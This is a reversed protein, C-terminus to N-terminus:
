PNLHCSEQCAGYGIAGGIWYAEDWFFGDNQDDEQSQNDDFDPDTSGEMDDDFNGDDIFEGDFDDFFDCM